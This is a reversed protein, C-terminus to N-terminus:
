YRQWPRRPSGYAYPGWVPGHLARAHVVDGSCRDVRLEYLEGSPRRARVLATGDRFEIDHFDDWGEAKLRYRIERRPMCGRDHAYPRDRVYPPVEALRQPDYDDADYEEEYQEYRRPPQPVPDRYIDAYRPDDYAAGYRPGYDEGLDAASAGPAGALYMAAILSAAALRVIPM